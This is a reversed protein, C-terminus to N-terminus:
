GGDVERVEGDMHEYNRQQKNIHFQLLNLLVEEGPVLSNKELIIPMLALLGVPIILWGVIESPMIRYGWIALPFILVLMVFAYIIQKGSLGKIFGVKISNIDKPIRVEIM